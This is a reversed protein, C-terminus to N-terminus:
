FMQEQPCRLSGAGQSAWSAGHAPSYSPGLVMVSVWAAAPDWPDGALSPSVRRPLGVRRGRGGPAIADDAVALLPRLPEYGVRGVPSNMRGLLLPGDRAREALHAPHGLGENVPPGPMEDIAVQPDLEGEGPALRRM